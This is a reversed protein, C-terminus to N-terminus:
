NEMFLFTLGFSTWDRLVHCSQNGVSATHQLAEWPPWSGLSDRCQAMLHPCVARPVWITQTCSLLAMGPGARGAVKRKRLVLHSMQVSLPGCEWSVYETDVSAGLSSCCCGQVKTGLAAM